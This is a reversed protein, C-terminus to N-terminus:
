SRGRCRTASKASWTSGTLSALLDAPSIDSRITGAQQLSPLAELLLERGRGYLTAV